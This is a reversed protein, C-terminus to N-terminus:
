LVSAGTDASTNAISKQLTRNEKLDRTLIISFFEVRCPAWWWPLVGEAKEFRLVCAAGRREEGM